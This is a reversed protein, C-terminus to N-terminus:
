SHSHGHCEHHEHYHSSHGKDYSGDDQCDECIGYFVTRLPNLKFGHEQILHNGIDGLEDCHVHILKNCKECKFHFCSNEECAERDGIYEFCASGVNDTIYKNVIGEDVMRNLHRYLTTTGVSVNEAKFHDFIDQVTFHKGPFEKLYRLLVDKQRTSYNVKTGCVEWSLYLNFIM